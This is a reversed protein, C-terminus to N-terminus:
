RSYPVYWRTFFSASSASQLHNILFTRCHSFLTVISRYSSVRPVHETITFRSTYSPLGIFFTRFNTSIWSACGLKTSQIYRWIWEGWSTTVFLELWAFDSNVPTNTAILDSTV